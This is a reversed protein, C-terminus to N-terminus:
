SAIRIRGTIASSGVKPKRRPPQPTPTTAHVNHVDQRADTRIRSIHGSPAGPLARVPPTYPAGGNVLLGGPLSRVVGAYKRLVASLEPAGLV